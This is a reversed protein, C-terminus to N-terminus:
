CGTVPIRYTLTPETYRVMGAAYDVTGDVSSEVRNAIEPQVDSVTVVLEGRRVLVAPSEGSVRDMANSITATGSRMGGASIAQDLYPGAWAAIQAATLAPTSICQGLSSVNAEGAVVTGPPLALQRMESPYQGVHSRFNRVASGVSELSAALAAGEASNIRPMMTVLVVSALVALIGVTIVVEILTFGASRNRARPYGSDPFHRRLCFDAVPSVAANSFVAASESIKAQQSGGPIGDEIRCSSPPM